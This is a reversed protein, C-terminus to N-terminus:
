AFKSPIWFTEGAYTVQLGTALPRVIMGPVEYVKVTCFHPKGASDIYGLAIKDPSLQVEHTTRCCPFTCNSCDISQVHSTLERLAISASINARCTPYKVQVTQKEKSRISKRNSDNTDFNWRLPLRLFSAIVISMDQFERAAQESWGNTIHLSIHRGSDTRAYLAYFSGIKGGPPKHLLGLANAGQFSITKLSRGTKISRRSIQQHRRDVVFVYPLIDLRSQWGMWAFGYAAFIMLSALGGIWLGAWLRLNALERYTVWGLIVAGVLAGVSMPLLLLVMLLGTLLRQLGLPPHLVLQEGDDGNKPDFDTMMESTTFSQM